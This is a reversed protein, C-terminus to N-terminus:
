HSNGTRYYVYNFIREVYHAYLIGFADRDGKSARALVEEENYDQETM